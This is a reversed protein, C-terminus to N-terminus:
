MFFGDLINHIYIIIFINSFMGDRESLKKELIDVLAIGDAAAGAFGCMIKSNNLKRLKKANNKGVTNGITMQGDGMMVCDDGKRVCLITTSHIPIKNYNQYTMLPHYHSSLLKKNMTILSKNDKNNLLLSNNNMYLSSSAYCYKNWTKYISQKYLNLNNGSKRIYNLVSSM